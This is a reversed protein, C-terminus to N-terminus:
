APASNLFSSVSFVFNSVSFRFHCKNVRYEFPSTDASIGIISDGLSVKSPQSYVSVIVIYFAAGQSIIEGLAANETKYIISIEEDARGRCEM